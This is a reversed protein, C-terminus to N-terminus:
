RSHLFSICRIYPSTPISEKSYGNLDLRGHKTFLRAALCSVRRWCFWLGGSLSTSRMWSGARNWVSGLERTTHRHVMSRRCMSTSALTSSSHLSRATCRSICARAQTALSRWAAYRYTVLTSPSRAPIPRWCLSTTSTHVRQPSRSRPQWMVPSSPSGVQPSVRAISPCITTQLSNLPPALSIPDMASTSTVTLPPPSAQDAPPHGEELKELNIDDVEFPYWRTQINVQPQYPQSCDGRM